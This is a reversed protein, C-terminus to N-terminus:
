WFRVLQERSARNQYRLIGQADALLVPSAMNEVMNSLKASVALELAVREWDLREKGLSRKLDAMARNYAVAMQGTENVGEFELRRSLDGAALCKLSEMVAHIPALVSGAVMRGYAFLLLLLLGAGVWLETLRQRIFARNAAEIKDNSVNAMGVVKDIGAHNAQYIKEMPGNLLAAAQGAKGAKVLPIFRRELRDYYAEAEGGSGQVLATKMDGEPLRETWYDHRMNYDSHLETAKEILADLRAGTAYLMQHATLHAEIINEPAPQIDAILDKGMVVRQYDVGGIKVRNLIGVALFLTACVGLGGALTLMLM